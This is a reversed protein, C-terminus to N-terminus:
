NRTQFLKRMHAFRQLATESVPLSVFWEAAPQPIWSNSVTRDPAQQGIRRALEGLRNCESEYDRMAPALADYALAAIMAQEYTLAADVIAQRKGDLKGMDARYLM